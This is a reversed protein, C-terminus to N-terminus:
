KAHPTKPLKIRKARGKLSSIKESNVIVGIIFCLTLVYLWLLFVIAASLAGYLRKLNSVQLYISFGIMAILWLVLTLGVGSLFNKPKAKYPCVYMNLLLALFFAVCILLAYDAVREWANSLLRSFIFGGLAFVLLFGIVTAMVTILLALAGLRLRLGRREPRFGYIIEGSRRMQYFLNTASYLTTAGLLITTGTTAKSAEAQVYNLVDKVSQFITMSFIKELDVPLKSVLLSLWFLLPVISMIFFFVLTGSVTTYRKETLLRYKDKLYAFVARIKSM